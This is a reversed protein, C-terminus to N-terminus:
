SAPDKVWFPGSGTQLHISSDITTHINEKVARSFLDWALDIRVQDSGEDRDTLVAKM